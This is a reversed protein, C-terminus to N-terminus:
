LRQRNGTRGSEAVAAILAANHTALAFDPTTRSGTRLDTTICTYVQSVNLAPGQLAPAEPADFEASSTLTLDGGQVGFMTGGRLRLWGETGRVTFDFEADEVAAGGIVSVNFATGSGATGLIDAHDPVERTTSQQTDFVQPNPFLTPTHAQLESVEGLVSEMLDLTHGATITLLNAGSSAQEFYLYGSATVPGFAGSTSVVRASVPRGIAGDAVLQAARRVSPNLRGQLGIATVADKGAAQLYQAEALDVGLPAECYVAKGAKLAAEVLARHAPVRVAVTVIDIEDSAIMELPDAYWRDAGFAEAAERASAENRTAVAALHTDALSKVAPVHSLQAWSARTDAGIIGVRFAKNM